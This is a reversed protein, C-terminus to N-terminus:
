LDSPGPGSAFKMEAANGGRKQSMDGAHERWGKVGTEEAGGSVLRTHVEGGSMSSFTKM